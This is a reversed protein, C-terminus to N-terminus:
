SGALAEEVAALIEAEDALRGVGPREEASAMLGESPGVFRHGWGTLTAVNRRTAPSSWMEPNMAPAWLVNRAGALVTASLLDDGLGVAARAMADATAPAVLVLDAWRALTVHEVRGSHEWWTEETHVQGGAAIALTEEPIFRFAAGTAAVRVEHGAERLRRIVGPTKYAAIGGTVGVLVRAPAGSSGLETVDVEPM